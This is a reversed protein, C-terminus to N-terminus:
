LGVIKKVAELRETYLVPPNDKSVLYFNREGNKIERLDNALVFDSCELVKNAAQMMESKSVNSVLKFGVVKTLPSIKKVLPIIKPAKVLSLNDLQAKGELQTLVYDSVAAAMFAIAPKEISIIDVLKEKYSSYSDYETYSYMQAYPLFKNKWQNYKEQSNPDLFDLAFRHPVISNKSGLFHVEMGLQLLYLAIETGTKGSSMNGIHRVDDIPVKTGGSTILIKM